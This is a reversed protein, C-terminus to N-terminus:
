LESKVQCDFKWSLPSRTDPSSPQASTGWLSTPPNSNGLDRIAMSRALADFTRRNRWIALRSSALRPQHGLGLFGPERNGDGPRGTVDPARQEPRKVAGPVHAFDHGHSRFLTTYPFLTSRPPRRIM